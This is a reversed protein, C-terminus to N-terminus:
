TWAGRTMRDLQARVGDARLWGYGVDQLRRSLADLDDSTWQPGFRRLFAELYPAAGVDWDAADRAALEWDLEWVRLHGEHGALVFRGDPTLVVRLAGQEHGDLVRIRRGSHVDWITLYSRYGGFVAFRGDATMRITHFGSPPKGGFTRIVDGTATDWLRFGEFDASLALGGDASLSATAMTFLSGSRLRHVVQGLELDWLTVDNHGIAAALRGDDALCIGKSGLSYRIAVERPPGGSYLDLLRTTRGLGSIVAQRDYADFRASLADGNWKLYRSNLDQDIPLVQQCTGTDVEWLRVEGDQSGSLLRRGDASLCVSQVVRQHGQLVRLCGGSEVDWVRVTGDRRGTVVIRGDASLDVASQEGVRMVRSSWAARPRTRVARRGLAWWASMIRPAREYGDIARAQRLLDLAAPFRSAAMAQETEAVLADVQGGLRSLEVHPRPRCLLPAGRHDGPLAWRRVMRDQGATLAFRGGADLRVVNTGGRHAEYTRLCRGSDVHWWRIASGYRSGSLLWRADASLALTTGRAAIDRMCRGDDLDWVRITGGGATAALRGDASFCLADVAPKHGPLLERVCRGSTLDWLRVTDERDHGLRLSRVSLAWRGDASVEVLRDAHDAASERIRTQGTHVDWVHFVGHRDTYLALRGDNTLRVAVGGSRPVYDRAREPPNAYLTRGGASSGFRRKTLDSFRVTEDECVSVAFSGDPTVDVALVPRRHAKVTRVCQGSHVDYLRVTGDFGGVAKLRGDPTLAFPVLDPVTTSAQVWLDEAPPRTPWPVEWERVCRADVIQGSRIKRLSQSIEPEDPREGALADLLTRAAGLDGRELHLQAIVFRVEWPDGTDARTAEIEALLADDTVAGRRWRVLGANYIARANQPDAALAQVFAEFADTPRDLDLLSVARNNLEDTLLDAMVPAPRPYAHGTVDQYIAILDTAVDTMSRPRDTPDQRLCRELLDGLTPPIAVADGARRAALAAGAVPGAMWTAEGTCMELVSVAFSYIDTRRGVPDGAAQEPSAYLPTLGGGGPVLVSAGPPADPSLTAALDRARALGFDTIKATAVDGDPDLLINAPKVDRHVLGDGHAHELGWATQIAIDLIRALVSAHDGDYLRRDSIWDHLSGGAVYEAFVRPVDDLFRVYYCHCVHPHLGLSVWTEAEAVFRKREEVGRVLEPRPCKVALDIDWALHRVRYVVGMGGQEHVQAVQYRDDIVEGVRWAPASDSSHAM